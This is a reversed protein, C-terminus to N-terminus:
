YSSRSICVGDLNLADVCGLAEMFDALEDMTMRLSLTPQKGDV